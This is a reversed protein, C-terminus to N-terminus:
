IKIDKLQNIPNNFAKDFVKTPEVIHGNVVMQKINEFCHKSCRQETSMRWDAFFANLMGIEHISLEDYTKGNVTWKGNINKITAEM